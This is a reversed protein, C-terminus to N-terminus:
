KRAKETLFEDSEAVDAHLDDCGERRKGSNGPADYSNQVSFRKMAGEFCLEEHSRVWGEM